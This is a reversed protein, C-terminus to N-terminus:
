GLPCPGMMGGSTQQSQKLAMQMIPKTRCSVNLFLNFMSSSKNRWLVDAHDAQQLAAEPPSQSLTPWGSIRLAHQSRQVFNLSDNLKVQLAMYQGGIVIKQAGHTVGVRLDHALVVAHKDIFGGALRVFVCLEPLAQSGTNMVTAAIVADIALTLIHPQLGAVVGCKIALAARALHDLEGGVDRRLLHLFVICAPLQSGNGLYLGRNLKIQVAADERGIIQKQLGHAIRQGFDHAFVVAHKNLRM